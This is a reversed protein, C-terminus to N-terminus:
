AKDKRITVKEQHNDVDLVLIAENFIHDVIYTNDVFRYNVLQRKGSSSVIFLAPIEQLKGEMQIFVQEGNDYVRIPRIPEKGSIHYSFNIPSLGNKRGQMSLTTQNIDNNRYYADWAKQNEDSPYTFKVLPTYRKSNAILKIHYTHKDTIVVLDTSIGTDIPKIILNTQEGQKVPTVKWRVTDGQQIGNQVIKEGEELQLVTLKLPSSIISAQGAGFTYTVAEQNNSIYQKGNIWKNAQNIAQQEKKSLPQDLGGLSLSQNQVMDKQEIHSVSPVIPDVALASFSTVMTMLLLTKKM